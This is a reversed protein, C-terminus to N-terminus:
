YLKILMKEILIFLVWITCSFTSNLQQEPFFPATNPGLTTYCTLAVSCNTFSTASVKSIPTLIGRCALGVWLLLLIQYFSWGVLCIYRLDWVVWFTSLNLKSLAADFKTECVIILVPFHLMFFYVRDSHLFFCFGTFHLEQLCIKLVKTSSVFCMDFLYVWIELVFALVAGFWKVWEWPLILM